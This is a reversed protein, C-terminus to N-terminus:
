ATPKPKSAAVFEVRVAWLSDQKVRAPAGLPDAAPWAAV